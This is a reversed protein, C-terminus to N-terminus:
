AEERLGYETSFLPAIRLLERDETVLSAPLSMKDHRGLVGVLVIKSVDVLIEELTSATINLTVASGRSDSIRMYENDTMRDKAYKISDFGRKPRLALRLVMEIYERKIQCERERTM